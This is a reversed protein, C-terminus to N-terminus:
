RRVCNEKGAEEDPTRDGAEDTGRGAPLPCPWPRVGEWKGAHCVPYRLLRTKMFAELDIGSQVSGQSSVEDM